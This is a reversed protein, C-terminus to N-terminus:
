LAKKEILLGLLLGAGVLGAVAAFWLGVDISFASALLGAVPAGVAVGAVLLAYFAGTALGRENESSGRVIMASSSPFVLGHGTGFLAMVPLLSLFSDFFPILSLSLAITLLGAAAPIKPGYKDSLWGSPYHVLLSMVAFATFAMAVHFEELGFGGMYLPVLVTFTGMAFHMCFVTSYSAQAM